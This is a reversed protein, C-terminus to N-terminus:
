IAGVYALFAVVVCGIVGIAAVIADGRSPKPTLGREAARVLESKQRLTHNM